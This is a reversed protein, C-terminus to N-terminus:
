ALEVHPRDRFSAWDGGWKIKVGIRHAAAKFARGMADFRATDNWDLPNPYADFAHSPRKNHKSHPYRLKSKGTAYAIDQDKKGRHGCYVTFSFTKAAEEAVRQLDKHCQALNDLSRANLKAM